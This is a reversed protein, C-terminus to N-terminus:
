INERPLNAIIETPSWNLTINNPGNSKSKRGHIDLQNGYLEYFSFVKEPM